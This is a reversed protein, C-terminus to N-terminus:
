NSANAERWVTLACLRTANAIGTPQIRDPTDRPTHYEPHEGTTTLVLAPVGRRVFSLHDSVGKCEDNALSLGLHAAAAQLAAHGRGAHRATSTEFRHTRGAGVMEVQLMFRTKELPIVPQAVYARSGLLGCEEAAWLCFLVSRRPRAGAARLARAVGLVVAVGSADDDAGPFFTGPSLVGQSRPGPGPGRRQGSRPWSAAGGGARMDAVMRAPRGREWPFSIEVWKDELVL